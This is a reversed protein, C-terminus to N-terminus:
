RTPIRNRAHTALKVSQLLYIHWTGLCFIFKFTPLAAHRWSNVGDFVISRCVVTRERACSTDLEGQGKGQRWGVNACIQRM